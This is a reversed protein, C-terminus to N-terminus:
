KNESKLCARVCAELKRRMKYVEVQLAKSSVGLRRALEARQAVKGRQENAYYQLILDRHTESLQDLCKELCSYTQDSVDQNGVVVPLLAHAPRKQAELMVARAVGVFYRAPDGVYTQVLEAVRLAVRDFTDDALAEADTFGRSAFVRILSNRITEYKEAAKERDTDLWRLLATFSRDLGESSVSRESHTQALVQVFSQVTELRQKRENTCLFRSEFLQRDSTSLAGRVYDDILEDEAQLLVNLDADAAFLQEEVAARETDSAVGLLYRFLVDRQVRLENM